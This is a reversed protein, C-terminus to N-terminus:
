WSGVPEHQVSAPIAAPGCRARPSASLMRGSASGLPKGQPAVAIPCRDAARSKARDPDGPLHRLCTRHALWPEGARGHNGRRPAVRDTGPSNRTASPVSCSSAPASPSAALVAKGLANAAGGRRNPDSARVAVVSRVPREGALDAFGTVQASPGATTPRLPWTVPRRRRPPPQEAQPRCFDCKKARRTLGDGTAPRWAANNDQGAPGAAWGPLSAARPTPTFRM